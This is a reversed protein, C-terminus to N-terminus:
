KINLHYKHWKYEFYGIPSGLKKIRIENYTSLAIFAFEISPEYFISPQAPIPRGESGTRLFNKSEVNEELFFALM